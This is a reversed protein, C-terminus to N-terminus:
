FNQKCQVTTYELRDMSLEKCYNVCPPPEPYSTPKSCPTGPQIGLCNPAFDQNECTRRKDPSLAQYRVEDIIRYAWSEQYEDGNNGGGSSSGGNSKLLYQKACGNGDKCANDTQYQNSWVMGPASHAEYAKEIYSEEGNVHLKGTKAGAVTLTDTYLNESKGATARNVAVTEALLRSGNLRGGNNMTISSSLVYNAGNGGLETNQSLAVTNMTPHVSANKAQLTVRGGNGIETCFNIKPATVPNNPNVTELKNFTGVPSSLVTVFSLTDAQAWPACCLACLLGLLKKM